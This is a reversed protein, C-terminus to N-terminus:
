DFFNLILEFNILLKTTLLLLVFLVSAIGLLYYLISNHVYYKLIKVVRIKM